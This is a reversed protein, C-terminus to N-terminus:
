LCFEWDVPDQSKKKEYKMKLYYMAKTNNELFSHMLHLLTVNQFM